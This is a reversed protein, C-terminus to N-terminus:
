LKVIEFHICLSIKLQVVLKKRILLLDTRLQQRLEFVLQVRRSLFELLLVAVREFLFHVFQCLLVAFLGRVGLLLLPYAIPFSGLRTM